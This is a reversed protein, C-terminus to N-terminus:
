PVWVVEDDVAYLRCRVGRGRQCFGLAHGAAWDGRAWGSAGEPGLAFARPTAATLFREAYLKRAMPGAPVAQVDDLAAHGSAAPREVLGSRTFGYRALFAEALPVWGNMDRSLGFHGDEGSAPLPQWQAQGGGDQWARVWRAPWEPGWFRDNAWYLWLTPVAGAAGQPRGWWAALREPQCSVGVPQSPDRGAGGAFNLVATLGPARRTALELVALGGVSQGVAIWRRADVGPWGAAAQAVQQLQDAAARAMAGPDLANCGGSHEPDGVAASSGYGLRTPVAVVFGKSVLYRALPEHRQRAPAEREAPGGRGHAVLALPHPGAGDPRYVTVTIRGEFARGTRDRTAVPQEIVTEQLDRALSPETRSPAAPQATAVAIPLLVLALGFARLGRWVARVGCPEALPNVSSM